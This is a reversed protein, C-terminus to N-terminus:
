GARGCTEEAEKHREKRREVAAVVDPIVWWTLLIAAILAAAGWPAGELLRAPDEGTTMVAVANTLWEPNLALLAVATALPTPIVHVVVGWLDQQSVKNLDAKDNADGKTTATGDKGVEIVRHTYRTDGYQVGVIQGIQLDSGLAARTVVMDGKSFVPEMSGSLITSFSLGAFLHLVLPILAFIALIITVFQSISLTTEVTSKTFGKLLSRNRERQAAHPDTIM